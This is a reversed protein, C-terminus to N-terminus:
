TELEVEEISITRGGDEDDHYELYIRDDVEGDAVRPDEWANFSVDPVVRKAQKLTQCAKEVSYYNDAMHTIVVFVTPM